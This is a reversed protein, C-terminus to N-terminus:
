GVPMVSPSLLWSVVRAIDPLREGAQLSCGNQGDEEGTKRAKERTSSGGIDPPGRRSKCRQRPYQSRM